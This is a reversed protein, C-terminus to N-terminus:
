NMKNEFLAQVHESIKALPEDWSRLTTQKMVYFNKDYWPTSNDTRSSTWVYYEAIPVAVFTTKGIAGAAHVLSTCSSVICDMQDIFDLTDEWSDIRDGLDIVGKHEALKDIYYIDAEDPLAALLQDLPIKRYEDQAFYPNGSCKIGIKFRSKPLENKPNRLPKLYPGKWLDNESLGLVAPLSMMPIWPSKTDISFSENQIEIGHRRFLKNKDRYHKTDPSCLIPRMGMRKLKDFFRINIIEDGIGGEGDVYLKMGPRVIGDWRKMNLQTEFLAHTPKFCEVFAQVGEVLKGERLLKGSLMSSLEKQKEPYKILLSEIISESTQKDGLLSINAAKQCVMDFDDPTLSLQLEIYHLAKEPFNMINYAKILNSRAAYKEEPSLAVAYATEACKLYLDRYETKLSLEGIADLEALTKTQSFFHDLLDFATSRKDNAVLNLITTKFGILEIPTM